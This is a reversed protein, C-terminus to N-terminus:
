ADEDTFHDLRSPAPRTTDFTFTAIPVPLAPPRPGLRNQESLWRLREGIQMGALPETIEGTWGRYAGDRYGFLTRLGVTLPHAYDVGALIMIPEDSNHRAAICSAAHEGWLMRDRKGSPLRRDYPAIVRDLEVLGHFASLVYVQSCRQEAYARSLQFLPSTYLHRAAAAHGLKQAGCSVLGIM